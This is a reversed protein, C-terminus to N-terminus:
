SKKYVHMCQIVFPPSPQKDHPQKYKKIVNHTYASAYIPTYFLHNMSIVQGYSKALQCFRRMQCNM